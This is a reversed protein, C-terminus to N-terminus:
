VQQGKSGIEVQGKQVVDAYVGFLMGHQGKIVKLAEASRDVGDQPLAVFGCRATKERVRLQVDDFELVTGPLFVKHEDDHGLDIVLNARFRQATISHAPVAKQLKALNQQSLIHVPSRPYRPQVADRLPVSSGWPGTRRLVVGFGFHNDLAAKASPDLAPLWVTSPTRLRLESAQGRAAILPAAQWRAANEPSAVDGSQECVISWARDGLLGSTEILAESLCEGAASAIPYRWIESIIM